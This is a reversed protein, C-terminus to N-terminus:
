TVLSRQLSEHAISLDSELQLAIIGNRIRNIEDKVEQYDLRKKIYLDVLMDLRDLQAHLELSM